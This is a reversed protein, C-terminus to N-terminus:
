TYDLLPLCLQWPLAKNKQFMLFLANDTHERFNLLSLDQQTHCIHLSTIKLYVILPAQPLIASNLSPSEWASCSATPNLVHCPGAIEPFPTLPIPRFPLSSVRSGGIIVPFLSVRTPINGPYHNTFKLLSSCVHSLFTTLLHDPLPLPKPSHDPNVFLWVYM